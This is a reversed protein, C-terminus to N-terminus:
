RRPQPRRSAEEKPALFGKRRLADIVALRAWQSTSREEAAAAAELADRVEETVRMGIYPNKGVLEEL